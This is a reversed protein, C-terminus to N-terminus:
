KATFDVCATLDNFAALQFGPDRLGYASYGRGDWNCVGRVAARTATLCSNLDNFGFNQNGIFLNGVSLYPQYSVGNWVCVAGNTASATAASCDRLVGYGFGSKGVMAGTVADHVQLTTGNWNCVINDVDAVTAQLCDNFSNYGFDVSGIASGRDISYPQFNLGNWNCVSGVGSNAVVQQCLQPQVFGFGPKGIWRNTVTNLPQHNSGNWACSVRFSGQAQATGSFVAFVLVSGLCLSALRSFKFMYLGELGQSSRPSCCSELQIENVTQKFEWRIISHLQLDCEDQKGNRQNKRPWFRQSIWLENAVTVFRAQRTM